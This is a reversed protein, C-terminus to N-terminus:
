FKGNKIDNLKHQDIDVYEEKARFIRGNKLSIIKKKMANGLGIKYAGGLAEEM